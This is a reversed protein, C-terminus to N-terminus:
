PLPRLPLPPPSNRARQMTLRRAAAGRSLWRRVKMANLRRSRPRQGRTAAIATSPLWWMASRVDAAQADSGEFVDVAYASGNYENFLVGVGDGSSAADQNSNMATRRSADYYRLYPDQTSLAFADLMKTTATDLDYSDLSDNNVIGEVEDM